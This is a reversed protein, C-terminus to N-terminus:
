VYIQLSCQSYRYVCVSSMVNIMDIILLLNGTNIAQPLIVSFIM